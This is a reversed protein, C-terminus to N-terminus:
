RLKTKSSALVPICDAGHKFAKALAQRAQEGEVPWGAGLCIDGDYLVVAQGTAIRRTREDFLVAFGKGIKKVVAGGRKMTSCGKFDVKLGNEIGIPAGSIWDIRECFVGHSFLREDKAAAVLIDNGQKGVVYLAEELGGIRARQGITYGFSPMNMDGRYQGDVSVFQGRDGAMYKEVFDALRKKGIFCMGRSSKLGLSPLSAWKEIDKVETKLLTGVPFVVSHLAEGRVSGLFYSQDKKEDVAALLMPKGDVYAVRAYHGTAFRPAETQHIHQNAALERLRDPFAGFKISRNCALDANPTFGRRMGELFVGDFVDTWYEAVFDFTQLQDTLQLAKTAAIAAKQEAEWCPVEGSTGDDWCRMLVPKVRWGAERLLLGSVSSDVGGSLALYISDNPKTPKPLTQLAKRFLEAVARM